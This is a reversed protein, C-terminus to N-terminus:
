VRRWQVNSQWTAKADEVSSALFRFTKAASLLDPKEGPIVVITDVQVCGIRRLEEIIERLQRENIGSIVGHTDKDFHGKLFQKENMTRGM